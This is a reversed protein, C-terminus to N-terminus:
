GCPDFTQGSPDEGVYVKWSPQSGEIPAFASFPQWGVYGGMRNKGNVEGCRINLLDDKRVNHFQASGPDVMADRVAQLHAPEEQQTDLRGSSFLIAGAIIDAGAVIAISTTNSNNSGM